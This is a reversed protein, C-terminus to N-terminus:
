IDKMILRQKKSASRCRMRAKGQRDQSWYFGFGLFSFCRQYGPHFQSYRILQTKEPSIALNFKALRQPLVRYFAGADRRLQFAVVFDDCYRIQM